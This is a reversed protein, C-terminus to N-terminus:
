TISAALAPLPYHPDLEMSKEYCSIAKEFGEAEWKLQFYRGKLYLNYAEINKTEAAVLHDELTLHGFNERIKDAILLSVEDQLAFIDELQRDFSESWIHFGNDTHILQATIRVRNGSKRISGELVTSVGLQNGIHRVDIKRNKFAFSSTRATVKLGGIKSLANIIEETMGDSFYENELDSSLNEFPLVAISRQEILSM